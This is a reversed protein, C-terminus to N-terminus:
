SADPALPADPTAPAADPAPTTDPPPADLLLLGGDIRADSPPPADVAAGTTPSSTCVPNTGVSCYGSDCDSGIQCRDGIGQKCGAAGALAAAFWVLRLVRM